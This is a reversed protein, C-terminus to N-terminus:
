LGVDEVHVDARRALHVVLEYAPGHFLVTRLIHAAAHGHDIGLAVLEDHAARVGQGARLHLDGGVQHNQGHARFRGPARHLQTFLQAHSRILVTEEHLAM